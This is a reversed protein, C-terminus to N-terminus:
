TASIHLGVANNSGVMYQILNTKLNLFILSIVAVLFSPLLLTRNIITKIIIALSPTISHM